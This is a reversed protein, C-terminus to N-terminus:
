PIILRFTATCLYMAAFCITIFGSRPVADSGNGVSQYKAPM